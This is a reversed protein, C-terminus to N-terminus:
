KGKVLMRNIAFGLIFMLIFIFALVVLRLPSFIESTKMFGTIAWIFFSLLLVLQSLIMMRLRNSKAKDWQSYVGSVLNQQIQKAEKLRARTGLIAAIIVPSMLAVLFLGTCFISAIINVDGNITVM